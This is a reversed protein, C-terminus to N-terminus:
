LTNIIVSQRKNISNKCNVAIFLIPDGKEVIHFTAPCPAAKYENENKM